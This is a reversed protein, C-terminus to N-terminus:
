RVQGPADTVNASRLAQLAEAESDAVVSHDTLASTWSRNTSSPDFADGCVLIHKAAGSGEVSPGHLFQRVYVAAYGAPRVDNGLDALALPDCAQGEHGPRPLALRIREAPDVGAGDLGRGGNLVLAAVREPRAGAALLAGYAGLGRGLLVIPSTPGAEELHRLAADIDGLLIEGHYGGGRAWDSAGHGAFDLAFVPGSWELGEVLAGFDSARGGLEHLCLLTAAGETRPDRLRHLALELRGHRIRVPADTPPATHVPEAPPGSPGPDIAPSRSRRGTAEPRRAQSGDHRPDHRRLFELVTQATREPHEIHVFHGSDDFVELEAHDPLSEAAQEATTGWGMPEQVKGLVALTPITVSRLAAMGWDPRWPGLGMWRIAPDLKWRWGDAAGRAGVTVLYRLWEIPLRPNHRARREALDDPTGPRREAEHLVTRFDLYKDIARRRHEVKEGLTAESQRMRARRSPVGDINVLCHFREPHAACLDTMLGGGKSHGVAFAIEGEDRLSSQLVRWADRRDADWSQLATHESDGHSRHDWSVVRYGGAALLPAFVDFTRAFDAGGHALLLVPDDEAGWEIVAIRAGDADVTRSREPVVAGPFDGWDAMSVATPADQHAEDAADDDTLHDGTM